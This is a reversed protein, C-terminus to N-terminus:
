TSTSNCINKVENNMVTMLSQVKEIVKNTDCKETLEAIKLKLKNVKKQKEKQIKNNEVLLQDIQQNKSEIISLLETVNSKIDLNEDKLNENKMTLAESQHRIYLTTKCETDIKAILEQIKEPDSASASYCPNLKFFLKNLHNLHSFSGIDVHLINNESLNIWELNPTHIFLDSPIKKIENRMLWLSKLKGGFQKLDVGNIEKIEAEYVDVMEINEFFGAINRPFKTFINKDSHFMTVDNDSKGNKHQDGMIISVIDEDNEFTMSTAYCKYREFDKHLRNRVFKFECDIIIGNIQGLTLILLAILFKM